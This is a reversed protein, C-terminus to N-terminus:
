GREIDRAAIALEGFLSRSAKQLEQLSPYQGWAKASSLFLRANSHDQEDKPTNDRRYLIFTKGDGSVEYHPKYLDM